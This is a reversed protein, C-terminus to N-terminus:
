PQHFHYCLEGAPGLWLDAVSGDPSPWDPLRGLYALPLVPNASPDYARRSSEARWNHIVWSRVFRGDIWQGCDNNCTKCAKCQFPNSPEVNGGLARPLVHEITMEDLPKDRGCYPCIM